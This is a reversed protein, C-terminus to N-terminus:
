GKEQLRQNDTKKHNLLPFWKQPDLGEISQYNDLFLKYRFGFIESFDSNIILIKSMGNELKKEM